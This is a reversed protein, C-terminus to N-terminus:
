KLHAVLAEGVKINRIQQHTTSVINQIAEPKHQRFIILFLSIIIIGFLFKIFNKNKM